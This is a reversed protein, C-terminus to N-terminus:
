RFAPMQLKTAYASLVTSSFAASSIFGARCHGMFGHIRQPNFENMTRGRLGVGCRFRDRDCLAPHVGEHGRVRSVFASWCSVGPQKLSVSDSGERWRRSATGKPLM